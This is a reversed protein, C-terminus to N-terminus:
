SIATQYANELYPYKKLLNSLIQDKKRQHQMIAADSGNLIAHDFFANMQQIEKEIIKTEDDFLSTTLKDYIYAIAIKNPHVMDAEYFRYDRLEDIVIEYSPFYYCNKNQKVLEYIALQLISKSITNEALGDRLYRVPSVNFLVKLNPNIGHLQSLYKQFGDIIQAQTAIKKVFNAAPQKHCNSVIQGEKLCYYYASGFTIMLWDSKILQQHAQNIQTNINLIVDNEDTGAFSGHHAWSFKLSNFEFLENSNFQKNQIIHNLQNIISLPNYVIGFPNIQVDFLRKQLIKGINEAFCSGIVLLPKRISIREPINIKPGKITFDM